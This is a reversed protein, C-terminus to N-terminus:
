GVSVSNRVGNLPATVFVSTGPTPPSKRKLMFFKTVGEGVLFFKMAGLKTRIKKTVGLSKVTFIKTVGMASGSVFNDRLGWIVTSSHKM